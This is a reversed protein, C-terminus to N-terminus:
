TSQLTSSTVIAKGERDGANVLFKRQQEVVLISGVGRELINVTAQIWVAVVVGIKVERGGQMNEFNSARDHCVAYTITM